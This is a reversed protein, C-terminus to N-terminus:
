VIAVQGVVGLFIRRLARLLSRLLVTLLPDLHLFWRLFQLVIVGVVTVIPILSLVFLLLWRYLHLLRYARLLPKLILAFVWSWSSNQRSRLLPQHLFLSVKLMTWAGMKEILAIILILVDLSLSRLSEDDLFLLEAHAWWVAVHFLLLRLLLSCEAVSFHLSIQYMVCVCHSDLFGAGFPHLGVSRMICRPSIEGPGLLSLLLDVSTLFVKIACLNDWSPLRSGHCILFSSALDARVCRALVTNFPNLFPGSELFGLLPAM